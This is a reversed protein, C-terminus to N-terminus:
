KNKFKATDDVSRIHLDRQPFPIEIGAKKLSKNIAVNVESQIIFRNDARAIWFLLRFDLSSEGFGSFLALPAPEQKINENSLAVDKLIELVSDTDTGYKVGVLVEARRNRDTLTWNILENSILNGNPVIVEAGDFTFITSARIGIEKVTGWLEGVEIIDGEQIPREFALIIGSVLNNFINQLGFGIGVGLAGVLIAFNDMGFGAAAIAFVFGISIVSIRLLLSMAGPVGRKMKIRPALEGEIIIKVLRSILITLWIIVFFLILNGISFPVTGINQENTLFGKIAGYSQDWVHFLRLVFVLCILWTLWNVVKVSKSYIELHYQAVINLKKVRKSYILTYLISNVTLNLAYFILILAASRVLGYTLFEALNVAGILCAFFSITLLVIGALSIFYLLRGGLLPLTSKRFTKRNVIILLSILSILIIAILLIRSLFTEGYGFSHLQVFVTVIVPLLIFKRTSEPLIDYLIILVPILLFLINLVGLFVPLTGYIPYAFLFSILLSASLPREIIKRIILIEKTNSEPLSQRLGKFLYALILFVIIFLIVHMFIKFSQNIGFDKIESKLDDIVSRQARLAAMRSEDSFSKWLPAKNLDFFQQTAIDQAQSIQELIENCFIIGNSIKVLKDQVFDSDGALRRELDNLSIITNNIQEIVSGPAEQDAASKLTNNWTNKYTRLLNKENELDEVEDSLDSQLSKLMEVLMNWDSVINDLSRFNLDNIRHIRPDERLLNLRFLLTDSDTTIEDKRIDSILSSQKRNLVQNINTVERTIESLPISRDEVLITDQGRATTALLLLCFCISIIRM